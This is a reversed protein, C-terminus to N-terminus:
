RGATERQQRRPLLGTIAVLGVGALFGIDALDLLRGAGGGTRPLPRAAAGAPPM